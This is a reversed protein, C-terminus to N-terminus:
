SLNRDPPRRADYGAGTTDDRKRSRRAGAQRYRRALDAPDAGLAYGLRLRWMLVITRMVGGDEWRRSSTTLRTRLCAPRAMRRLAASLAIDEMLAISPFAGAQEFTGREVFMGQDGTAIGTLRSRLNMGREVLRLLPHPGSLRVDFRGWRAGGACAHLLAAAAEAPVRTDAHLFWLVEGQAARAGANMQTARGRPATLLLDIRDAALAPTADSSGGDVLIVEAGARRLPALDDLLAAVSRAENLAPIIISLRM